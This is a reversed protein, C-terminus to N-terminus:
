AKVEKLKNTMDRINVNGEAAFVGSVLALLAVLVIYKKM